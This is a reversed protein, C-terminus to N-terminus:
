LNVVAPFHLKIKCPLSPFHSKFAIVINVIWKRNLFKKILILCRLSLKTNSHLIKILLAYRGIQKFVWLYCISRKRMNFFTYLKTIGPKLEGPRYIEPIELRGTITIYLSSLFFGFAQSRSLFLTVFIDSKKSM